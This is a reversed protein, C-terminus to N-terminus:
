ESAESSAAAREQALLLAVNWWEDRSLTHRAPAAVVLAALDDVDVPTTGAIWGRVYEGLHARALEYKDASV